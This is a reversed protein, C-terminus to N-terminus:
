NVRPDEPSPINGLVPRLIQAGIRDVTQEWLDDGPYFAAEVAATAILWGGARLEGELQGAGWGAYGLFLRFPLDIRRLLQQLQQRQSAVFLGPFVTADAYEAAQHLALLTGSVPGGLYLAAEDPCPGEGIMEWVDSLSSPTRRNLVLGVAGEEDHQVMLIVTRFFNPDALHPSAVLLHGQLSTTM